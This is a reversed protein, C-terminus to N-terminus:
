AVTVRVVQIANNAYGLRNWEEMAPQTHGEADFVRSRLTAPGPTTEEWLFEWGRWAYRAHESTWDAARWTRGDDVSVEVREVPAAGSWALGRLCVV